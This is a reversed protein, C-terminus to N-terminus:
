VTWDVKCVATTPISLPQEISHETLLVDDNSNQITINGNIKSNTNERKLSRDAGGGWNGTVGEKRM